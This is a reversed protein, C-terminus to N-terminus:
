EAQTRQSGLESCQTELKEILELDSIRAAECKALKKAKAALKTEYEQEKKEASATLEDVRLSKANYATQCVELRSLLDVTVCKAKEVNERLDECAKESYRQKEVEKALRKQLIQYKVETSQDQREKVGVARAVVQELATPDEETDLSVALVKATRKLPITNVEAGAEQTPGGRSVAARSETSNNAELILRRAKM